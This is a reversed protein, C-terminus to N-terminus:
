QLESRPSMETRMFMLLRGDATEAICPTEVIHALAGDHESVFQYDASETWSDGEDDSYLASCICMEHHASHHIDSVQNFAYENGIVLRGSRTQIMFTPYAPTDAPTVRVPHSWTRGEDLSKRFLCTNIRMGHNKPPKSTDTEWCILAVAGSQLRILTHPRIDAETGQREGLPGASEWTRGEDTSHLRSMTRFVALLTGDNLQVPGVFRSPVEVEFLMEGGM